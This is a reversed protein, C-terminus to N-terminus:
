RMIFYVLVTLGVNVPLTLISLLYSLNVSRFFGALFAGGLSAACFLAGDLFGNGYGSGVFYAAPLICFWGGLGGLASMKAYTPNAYGMGIFSRARREVVGNIGVFYGMFAAIFYIM